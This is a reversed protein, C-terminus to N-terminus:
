RKKQIMSESIILSIAMASLLSLLIFEWRSWTQDKEVANWRDRHTEILKEKLLSFDHSIVYRSREDEAAKKTMEVQWDIRQFHVWSLGLGILLSAGLLILRIKRQM